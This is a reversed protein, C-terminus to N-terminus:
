YYAKRYYLILTNYTNISNSEVYLPIGNFQWFLNYSMRGPRVVFSDMSSWSVNPLITKGENLQLVKEKGCHTNGFFFFFFFPRCAHFHQTFINPKDRYIIFGSLEFDSPSFEFFLCFHISPHIIM